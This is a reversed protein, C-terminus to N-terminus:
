KFCFKKEGYFDPNPLFVLTKKESLIFLFFQFRGQKQQIWSIKGSFYVMEKRNYNRGGTM